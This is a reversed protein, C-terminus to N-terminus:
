GGSSFAKLDGEVEVVEGVGLGDGRDAADGAAVEAHQVSEESLEIADQFDVAEPDDCGVDDLSRAVGQDDSGRSFLV